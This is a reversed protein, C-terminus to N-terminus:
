GRSLETSHRHREFQVGDLAAPQREQTHDGGEARRQIQGRSFQTDLRKQRGVVVCRCRQASGPISAGPLPSPDQHHGSRGPPPDRVSSGPLHVPWSRPSLRRQSSLRSADLARKQGTSPASRANSGPSTSRANSAPRLTSRANSGPSASRANRAPRSPRACLTQRWSSGLPRLRQPHRSRRAPSRPTNPARAPAPRCWRM